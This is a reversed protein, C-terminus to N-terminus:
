FRTYIRTSHDGDDKVTGELEHTEDTAPSYLGIKHTGPSVAIREDNPCARGSDAGDVFIRLASKCRVKLGAAGAVGSPLAAPALTVDVRAAGSLSQKHLKFTEAVVVLRHPGAPLSVHLPSPGRLEGDLYVSAGPPTTNVDIADGAGSAV